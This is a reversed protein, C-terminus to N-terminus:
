AWSLSDGFVVRWDGREMSKRILAEKRRRLEAECAALIRIKLREPLEHFGRAESCPGSTGANDVHVAVAQTALTAGVRLEAIQDPAPISATDTM